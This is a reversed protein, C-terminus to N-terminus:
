GISQDTDADDAVPDQESAAIEEDELRLALQDLAESSAGFRHRRMGDLQHKLKEILLDRLRIDANRTTVMAQLEAVDDPLNQATELM